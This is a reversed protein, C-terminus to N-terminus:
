QVSTQAEGTRDALAGIVAGVGLVVVLGVLLRTAGWQWPAVLFLFALVAPNLLPNGLWHALVATRPVGARRLTVTVPATCCTCMMSPVSTLAGTSAQRWRGGRGLFGQLWRRSILADTGAAVLLSVVLAKWVADTYTLMFTWAGSLSPASGGVDLVSSGDWQHTGLMSQAKAAYPLWKAWALGVVLTMAVVAAGAAVVVARRVDAPRPDRPRDAVQNSM